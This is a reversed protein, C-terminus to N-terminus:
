KGADGSEGSGDVIRWAMAYLTPDGETLVDLLLRKEALYVRAFQPDHAMISRSNDILDALKVTKADPSAKALHARDLAKRAARNGDEPRSVDTLMEVLDAVADGFAERVDDITAGTDEVVDHLWAACVMSRTHPVSRVLQAVARPHSIYPEGTYKRVQGVSAHAGTAFGEALSEISERM